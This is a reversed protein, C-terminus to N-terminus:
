VKANYLDIVMRSNETVLDEINKRLQNNHIVM